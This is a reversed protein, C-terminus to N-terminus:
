IYVFSSCPIIHIYIHTHKHPFLYLRWPMNIYIYKYRYYHVRHWWWRGMYWGNWFLHIECTGRYIYIYVVSYLLDYVPLKGTYLKDSISANKTSLVSLLRCQFESLLFQTKKKKPLFGM